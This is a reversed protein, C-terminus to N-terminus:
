GGSAEGIVIHERREGHQDGVFLRTQVGRVAADRAVSEAFALALMQTDQTSVLYRGLRVGWSDDEELGIFLEQIPMAPARGGRRRSTPRRDLCSRPFSSAAAM